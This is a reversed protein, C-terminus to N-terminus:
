SIKWTIIIILGLIIALISSVYLMFRIIGLTDQWGNYKLRHETLNFIVTDGVNNLAYTTPSVTLDFYINQDLEKLVMIFHGSVKYGGETALKSVVLCKRPKEKLYEQPTALLVLLMIIGSIVCTAGWRGYTM